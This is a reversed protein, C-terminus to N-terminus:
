LCIKCTVMHFLHLFYCPYYLTFTVSNSSPIAVLGFILLYLTNQWFAMFVLSKGCKISKLADLINFSTITISNGHQQHIDLMVSKRNQVSNLLSKYHYTWMKVIETDEVSVDVNTALHVNSNTNKKVDKWFENMGDNMMSWVILEGARM